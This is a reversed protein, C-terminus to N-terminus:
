CHRIVIAVVRLAKSLHCFFQSCQRRRIELFQKNIQALCAVPADLLGVKNALSNAGNM